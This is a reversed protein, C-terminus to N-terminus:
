ECVEDPAGPRPGAESANRGRLGRHLKRGDAMLRLFYVPIVLSGIFAAVISNLPRGTGKVLGARARPVPRRKRRDKAVAERPFGALERM